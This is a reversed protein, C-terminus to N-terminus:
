DRVIARGHKTLVVDVCYNCCSWRYTLISRGFCGPRCGVLCPAECACEAPVTVCVTTCCGTCPDVVCLPVEVPPPPCPTCCPDVCAPPCCAQRRHRLGAEASNTADAASLSVLGSCLLFAAIAVRLKM